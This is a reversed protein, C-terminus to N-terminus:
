GDFRVPMLRASVLMGMTRSHDPESLVAWERKVLPLQADVSQDAPVAVAKSSLIRVAPDGKSEFKVTQRPWRWSQEQVQVHISSNPKRSYPGNGRGM